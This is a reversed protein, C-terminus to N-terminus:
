QRSRSRRRRWSSRDRRSSPAAGRDACRGAAASLEEHRGHRGSARTQRLGTDAQPGHRGSAWTERPGHRGEGEPSPKKHERSPASRRRRKATSAGDPSAATRMLNKRRVIERRIGACKHTPLFAGSSQCERGPTGCQALRRCCRSRLDRRMPKRHRMGPQPKGSLPNTGSLTKQRTAGPDGTCPASYGARINRAQIPM